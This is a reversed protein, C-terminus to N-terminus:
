RLQKLAAEVLAFEARLEPLTATADAFASAKGQQEMTQAVRALGNAGFNSCSGKVTHAARTLQAANGQALASEIEAIREPIDQLFLDILEALFAPDDPNLERLGAIAQPDIAPSANMANLQGM